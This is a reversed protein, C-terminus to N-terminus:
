KWTIKNSPKCMYNHVLRLANILNFTMEDDVEREHSYMPTKSSKFFNEKLSEYHWRLQQEMYEELAEEDIDFTM